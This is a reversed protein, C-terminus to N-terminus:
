RLKYNITYGEPTISKLAVWEQNDVRYWLDINLKAKGALSANLKYRLAEVQNGKVDLTERGLEVIRTDLWEANQPNLLKTQKVINQNWYAFTMPCNPLVQKAKGDDVVFQSEGSKGSVKTMVDNELTSSDLRKLCGEKWQEVADHKYQYANIFLIKVNFKAQSILENAESLRFTHQGIRTKDLYVDFNWEKAYGINPTMVTLILWFYKKM